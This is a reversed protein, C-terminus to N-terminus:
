AEGEVEFPSTMPAAELGPATELNNSTTTTTIDNHKLKVGHPKVDEEGQGQMAPGRSRSNHNNGSSKAEAKKVSSRSLSPTQEGPKSTQAAVEIMSLSSGMASPQSVSLFNQTQNKMAPSTDGSAAASQVDDLWPVKTCRGTLRKTTDDVAGFHGIAGGDMMALIQLLEDRKYHPPSKLQTHSLLPYLVRLYTHRLATSSPPLDLLNRLIIDLLVHLDNTYFYEYTPPSTFLLYLLKLILLQLSTESERNLLLIINEGFTKFRSGHESLTSIVKNTIQTTPSQPQDPSPDHACVM